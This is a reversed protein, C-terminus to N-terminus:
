EVEEDVTSNDRLKAVLQPTTVCNRWWNEIQKAIEYLSKNTTVCLQPLILFCGTTNYVAHVFCMIM